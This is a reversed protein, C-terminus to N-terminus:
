QEPQPSVLSPREGGPVGGDLLSMGLVCRAFLPEGAELEATMQGGVRRFARLMEATGALDESSELQRVLECLGLAGQRSVDGAAGCSPRPRRRSRRLGDCSM